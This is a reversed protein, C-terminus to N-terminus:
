IDNCAVKNSSFRVTFPNGINGLDVDTGYLQIQRRDKSHEITFNDGVVYRCTRIKSLHIIHKIFGKVLDVVKVSQNKM